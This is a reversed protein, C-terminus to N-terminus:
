LTTIKKRNSNHEREENMEYNATMPVFFTNGLFSYNIYTEGIAGLYTFEM